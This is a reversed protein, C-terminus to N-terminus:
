RVACCTVAHAVGDLHEVRMVKAGCGLLMWKGKVFVKDQVM